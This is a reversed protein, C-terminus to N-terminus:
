KLLNLKRNALRIAEEARKRDTFDRLVGNVGTTKGYVDM